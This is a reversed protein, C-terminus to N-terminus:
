APIWSLYISGALGASAGGAVVSATFFQASTMLRSPAGNTGQTAALMSDFLAPATTTMDIGDILTDYLTTASAGIGLDLSCAGSSVHSTLVLVRTIIINAGYPNAWSAVGGGTDVDAMTLKVADGQIASKAILGTVPDLLAQINIGLGAQSAWPGSQDSITFVPYTHSPDSVWVVNPDNANKLLANVQENTLNPISM